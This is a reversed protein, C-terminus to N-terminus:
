DDGAAYEACQRCVENALEYEKFELGCGRCIRV